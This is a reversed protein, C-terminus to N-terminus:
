AAMTPQELPVHQGIHGGNIASCLAARGGQDGECATHAIRGRKRFRHVEGAALWELVWAGLFYYRGARKAVRLRGVRVERKLTTKGLGLVAQLAPLDYAADHEIVHHTM